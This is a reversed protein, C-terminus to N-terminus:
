TLRTNLDKGLFELSLNNIKEMNRGTRVNHPISIHIEEPIFVVHEKDIHHAVSGAFPKNLPIFGLERRKARSHLAVEKGRRTLRYKQSAKRIVEPHNKNWERCKFHYVRLRWIWVAFRKDRFKQLM